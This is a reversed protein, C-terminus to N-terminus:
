TKRPTGRARAPMGIRMWSNLTRCRKVLTISSLSDTFLTTTNNTKKMDDLLDSVFKYHKIAEGIAIFEAEMASLAVLSQRHTKWFVPSGNVLIIMGSRSRRYTDMAFSADSYIEVPIDASLTRDFTLQYNHAKAYQLSRDAQTIDLDNPNSITSLLSSALALDPRTTSAIYALQGTLQQMRKRSEKSSTQKDAAGAAGGQARRGYDIALPFGKKVPPLAIGQLYTNACPLGSVGKSPVVYVVGCVCVCQKRCWVNCQVQKGAHVSDVM